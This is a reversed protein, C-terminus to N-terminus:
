PGPRAPINSSVVLAGARIPFFLSPARFSHITPEPAYSLRWVNLNDIPIPGKLRAPNLSDACPGYEPPRDPLGVAIAAAVAEDPNIAAAPGKLRGSPIAGAPSVFPLLTPIPAPPVPHLCSIFSGICASILNAAWLGRHLSCSLRM